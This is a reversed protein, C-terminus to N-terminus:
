ARVMARKGREREHARRTGEVRAVEAPHDAALWVPRVCVLFEGLNMKWTARRFGTREPFSPGGRAHRRKNRRKTQDLLLLQDDGTMYPEVSCTRMGGRQLTAKLSGSFM